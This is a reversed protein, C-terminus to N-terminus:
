GFWILPRGEAFAASSTMESLVSYPSLTAAIEEGQSTRSRFGSM